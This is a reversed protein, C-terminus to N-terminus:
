NTQPRRCTSRGLSASGGPRRWTSSPCFAPAPGSVGKPTSPGLARRPPRTVSPSLVTFKCRVGSFRGTVDRLVSPVLLSVLVLVVGTSTISDTATRMSNMADSAVPWTDNGNILVRTAENPSSAPINPKIRTSIRSRRANSAIMTPPLRPRAPAARCPRSRLGRTSGPTM